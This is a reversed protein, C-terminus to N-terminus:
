EVVVKVYRSEAAGRVQLLYLGSMLGAVDIQHQFKGAGTVQERLIRGSLDLM